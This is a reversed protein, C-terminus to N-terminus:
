MQKQSSMQLYGFTIHSMDVAEGVRGSMEHNLKMIQSMDVAEGVRGSMEHNLKM